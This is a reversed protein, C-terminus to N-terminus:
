FGGGLLSAVDESQRHGSGAGAHPSGPKPSPCGKWPLASGKLTVDQVPAPAQGWSEAGKCLM